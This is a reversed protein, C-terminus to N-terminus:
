AAKGGHVLALVDALRVRSLRSITVCKIRGAKVMRHITAISVGIMRAAEMKTITRTDEAPPTADEPRGDLAANIANVEEQTASNDAHILTRVAFATEPKM